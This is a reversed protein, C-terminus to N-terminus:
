ATVYLILLQTAEASLFEDGELGTRPNYDMPSM